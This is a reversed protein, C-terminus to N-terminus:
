KGGGQRRADRLQDILPDLDIARYGTDRQWDILASAREPTKSALAAQAFLVADAPERQTTWAEQAMQLAATPDGAVHLLYAIVPRENVFDDRRQQQALRAAFEDRLVPVRQPEVAQASIIAQVLLADSRPTQANLRLAAAYDKRQNLLEILALRIVHPQRETKLYRSWIDQAGRLDGSIRRAEGRHFALWEKAFRGQYDPHRALADLQQIAQTPNGRRYLLVATCGMKEAQGFRQGLGDCEQQASAMDASVLRIAFRWARFEPRSDDNAIAAGLDALAGDFDHLGQRVLARVYLTEAAPNADSWWPALIAKANGLWRPDGEDIATLFALKAANTARESNQPSARWNKLADRLAQRDGRPQGDALSLMVVRDAPVSRDQALLGVPAIGFLGVALFGLIRRLLPIGGSPGLRHAHSKRYWKVARRPYGCLVRANIQDTM